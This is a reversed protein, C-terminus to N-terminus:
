WYGFDKLKLVCITRVRMIRHCSRDIREGAVSVLCARDV